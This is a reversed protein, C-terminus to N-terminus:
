PLERALQVPRMQVSAMGAALMLLRRALRWAPKSSSPCPTQAHPQDQM